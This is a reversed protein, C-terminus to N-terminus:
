PAKHPSRRPQKLAKSANLEEAVFKAFGSIKGHVSAQELADM